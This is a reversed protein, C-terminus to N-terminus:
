VQLAFCSWLRPILVDVRDRHRSVAGMLDAHVHILSLSKARSNGAQIQFADLCFHPDEKVQEPGFLASMYIYIYSILKFIYM